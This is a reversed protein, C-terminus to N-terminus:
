FKGTAPADTVPTHSHTSLLPKTVVDNEARETAAAQSSDMDGMEVDTEVTKKAPEM